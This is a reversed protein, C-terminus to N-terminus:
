SLVIDNFLPGVYYTCIRAIYKKLMYGYSFPLHLLYRCYKSSESYIHRPTDCILLGIKLQHQFASTRLFTQSLVTTHSKGIAYILSAVKRHLLMDWLRDPARNKSALTYTGFYILM